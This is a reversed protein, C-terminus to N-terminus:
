SNENSQDGSVLCRSIASAWVQYGHTSLHVGDQLFGPRTIPLCQEQFPKEMDLFLCGSNEAIKKLEGNVASVDDVPLGPLNMPMLSNLVVESQPCMAAIRPLMSQLIAPFFRDGALLNNTGSMVLIFDYCADAELESALRVALDELFEGATGRANVRFRPLLVDWDGWEVLSDGLMLLSKCHAMLEGCVM